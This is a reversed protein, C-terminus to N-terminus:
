TCNHPQPVQFGSHWPSARPDCWRIFSGPILFGSAHGQWSTGQLISVERVQSLKSETRSQRVNHRSKESWPLNPATTNLGRAGATWRACYSSPPLAASVALNVLKEAVVHHGACAMKGSLLAMPSSTVTIFSPRPKDDSVM